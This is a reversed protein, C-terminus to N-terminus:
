AYFFRAVGIELLTLLVAAGGVLAPGLRDATSRNAFRSPVCILLALAFAPFLYRGQFADVRPAGVANWGSYALLFVVLVLGAVLVGATIRLARDLRPAADFCALAVVAAAAAVVLWWPVEWWATQAVVDSAIEDGERAVTHGIASLLSFPHSRLYEFQADPDVDRYAYNGSGDLYAPPFDQPVHRDAAWASWAGALLAAVVLTSALTVLVRGRHRLAPVLLVVAVAVYPPKALALAGVALACEVLLARTIEDESRTTLAMADAIVLVVLAVTIADASITAAQFLVVPLLALVALLWRRSGIRRIALAVLAVFTALNALRGLLLIGATSVGLTRGARMAIASPLYPVPPYVAGSSFDVFSRPGDPADRGLHRWFPEADEALFGGRAIVIMDEILEDPIDGGFATRGDAGPREIAFVGGDSVQWARLVHVSEDYGGLAPLTLALLVGFVSAM